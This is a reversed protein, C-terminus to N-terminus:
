KASTYIFRCTVQWCTPAYWIVQPTYYHLLTTSINVQSKSVLYQKYYRLYYQFNGEVM